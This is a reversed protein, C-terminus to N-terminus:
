HSSNLRTSKRDLHGGAARAADLERQAAVIWSCEPGFLARAPEHLNVNTVFECAKGFQREVGFCSRIAVGDASREIDLRQTERMFIGCAAHQIAIPGFRELERKWGINEAAAQGRAHRYIRGRKGAHRVRKLRQKAFRIATELLGTGGTIRHHHSLLVEERM